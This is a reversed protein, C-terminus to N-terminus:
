IPRQFLFVYILKFLIWGIGFAFILCFLAFSFGCTMKDIVLFAPKYPIYYAQYKVSTSLLARIEDPSQNRIFMIKKDLEETSLDYYESDQKLIARADKMDCDRLRDIRSISSEIVVMEVFLDRHEKSMHAWMELVQAVYLTESPTLQSALTTSSQFSGPNDRIKQAAARHQKRTCGEFQVLNMYILPINRAPHPTPGNKEPTSTPTCPTLPTGPSSFLVKKVEETPKPSSAIM